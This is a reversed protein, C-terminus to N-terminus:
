ILISNRFIVPFNDAMTRSTSECRRLSSAPWRWNRMLGYIAQLACLDDDSELNKAVATLWDDNWANQLEPIKESPNAELWQKLREVRDAYMKKMSALQDEPSQPVGNKAPTMEQVNAKLRGVESRLKLLEHLQNEPVQPSSNAQALLTALRQNDTTMQALEGVQRRLIGEQKRLTAQAQRQLLFPTVVSAAVIAAISFKLKTTGMFKLLTLTTGTALAGALATGSVSAALGAPAAIVAEDALVVALAAASFTVGRHKLLNHLKELARSVRKQAAAENTGLAEGVSRFDLREYFRLLVAARDKAGLQNVAEDVIPAIQSLHAKSIDTLANMEVAQRERFQRRREGRMTNAAVFCTHRHLWGGLRVERSLKKALRALDMFVIQTVDEALHTDGGVLRVATSYVLDLYNSVLQRFASESGHSLYDALLRQNDTM